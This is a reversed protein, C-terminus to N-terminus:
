LRATLSARGRGRGSPQVNFIDKGDANESERHQLHADLFNLLKGLAVGGTLLLVPIHVGPGGGVWSVSRYRPALSQAAPPGAGWGREVM